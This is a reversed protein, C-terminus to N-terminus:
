VEPNYSQKPSLSVKILHEKKQKQTLKRAGGTVRRPWLPDTLPQQQKNRLDHSVKKCCRPIYDVLSRRNMPYGLCSYQLPNDKGEGPSRGSGPILSMGREM